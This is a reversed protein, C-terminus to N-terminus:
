SNKDFIIQFKANKGLLVTGFFLQKYFAADTFAIMTAPKAHLYSTGPVIMDLCIKAFHM